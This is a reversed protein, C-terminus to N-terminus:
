LLSPIWSIMEQKKMKLDPGPKWIQTEFRLNVEYKLKLKLKNRQSLLRSNHTEFSIKKPKLVRTKLEWNRVRGSIWKM